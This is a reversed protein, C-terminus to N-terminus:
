PRVHRTRWLLGDARLRGSVWSHREDTAM